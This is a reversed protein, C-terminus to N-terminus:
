FSIIDRKISLYLLNIFFLPFSINNKKKIMKIYNNEFFELIEENKLEGNKVMEIETEHIIENINKLDLNSDIKKYKLIIQEIERLAKFDRLSKYYNLYVLWFKENFIILHYNIQIEKDIINELEKKIKFFNDNKIQINFQTIDLKINGAQCIQFFNNNLMLLLEETSESFSLLTLVNEHSLEKQKLMENILGNPIQIKINLYFQLNKILIKSYYKWKKEDQLMENIKESEYKARFIFFLKSFIELIENKCRNSKTANIAELKIELDELMKSYYKIDFKECFYILNPEFIRLLNLAENTNYYFNLLELYYDLSFQKNEEFLIDKSDILLDSSCPNDSRINLYKLAEEFLKFQECKNINLESFNVKYYTYFEFNYIFNNRLKDILFDKKYAKNNFKFRLIINYKGTIKNKASEKIVKPDYEIFYVSQSYKPKSKPVKKNVIKQLKNIGSENFNFILKLEGDLSEKLSVIFFAYNYKSM